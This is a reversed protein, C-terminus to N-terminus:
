DDYYDEPRMLIKRLYKGAIVIVIFAVFGFIAYAGFLSEMAFHVHKNYFADAIVLLVGFVILLGLLSAAWRLLSASGTSLYSPTVLLDWIESRSGFVRTPRDHDLFRSRFVHDNFRLSTREM